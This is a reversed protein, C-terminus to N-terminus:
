LFSRGPRWILGRADFDVSKSSFHICFYVVVFLEPWLLVRVQLKQNLLREQEALLNKKDEEMKALLYKEHEKHSREMEQAMRQAKEQMERQLQAERESAEARAKEVLSLFWATALDILWCDSLWGCM